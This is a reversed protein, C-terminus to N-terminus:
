RKVERVKFIEQTHGFSDPINLGCNVVFKEARGKSEFCHVQDTHWYYVAYWERAKAKNKRKPKTM